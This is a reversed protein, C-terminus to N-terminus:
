LKKVAISLTPQSVNCQEAAKRFHGTERLAVIYRLETLTM